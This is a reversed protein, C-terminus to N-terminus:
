WGKWTHAWATGTYTLNTGARRVFSANFFRPDRKQWYRLKYWPKTTGSATSRWDIPYFYTPPLVTVRPDGQSQLVHTIMRPGTDFEPIHCNRRRVLTQMARLWFPARPRSVMLANGTPEFDSVAGLIVDAEPHADFLSDFSQVCVMDLDAYIGGYHYMYFVRMADARKIPMNYEDYYPLFWPYEHQIFARNDADTWFRYEYQPNEALWSQRWTAFFPPLVETKYSQHILRPFPRRPPLSANLLDVLGPVAPPLYYRNWLEPLWPSRATLASM